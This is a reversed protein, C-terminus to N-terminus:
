GHSSRNLSLRFVFVCLIYVKHSNVFYWKRIRFQYSWDFGVLESDGSGGSGGPVMQNRSSSVPVVPLTLVWLELSLLGRLGLVSCFRPRLGSHVATQDPSKQIRSPHAMSDSVLFNVFRRQASYMGHQGYSVGLGVNSRVRLSLENMLLDQGENMMEFDEMRTEHFSLLGLRFGALALPRLAINIEHYVVEM